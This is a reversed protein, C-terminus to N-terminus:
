EGQPLFIQRRCSQIGGSHALLRLLRRFKYAPTDLGKELFLEAYLADTTPLTISRRHLFRACTDELLAVSCGLRDFCSRLQRRLV